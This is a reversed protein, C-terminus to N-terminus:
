GPGSCLWYRRGLTPPQQLGQLGSCAGGHANSCTEAFHSSNSAWDKLRFQITTNQCMRAHGWKPVTVIVYSQPNTADTVNPLDCCVKASWFQLVSHWLLGPGWLSWDQDCWNKTEFECIWDEKWTIHAIGTIQACKIWTSFISGSELALVPRGVWVQQLVEEVAFSQQSINRMCCWGVTQIHKLWKSYNIYRRHGIQIQLWICLSVRICLCVIPIHRIQILCPWSIPFLGLGILRHHM